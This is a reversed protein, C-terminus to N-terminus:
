RGSEESNWEDSREAGAGCKGEAEDEAKFVHRPPIEGGPVLSRTETRGGGLLICGEWFFRGAAYLHDM